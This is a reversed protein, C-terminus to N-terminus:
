AVTENAYLAPRGAIANTADGLRAFGILSFASLQITMSGAFYYFQIKPNTEIAGSTRTQITVTQWEDATLEIDGSLMETSRHFEASNRIKIRCEGGVPKIAFQIIASTIEDMRDLLAITVGQDPTLSVEMCDQSEWVGGSASFTPSGDISLHSTSLSAGEFSESVFVSGGAPPLHRREWVRGAFSHAPLTTDVPPLPQEIVFPMVRGTSTIREAKVGVGPAIDIPKSGAYYVDSLRIFAESGSAKLGDLRTDDILHIGSNSEDGVFVGTPALDYGNVRVAATNFYDGGNAEFWSSQFIFSGTGAVFAAGISCGEVSLKTFLVRPVGASGCALIGARCANIRTNTFVKNGSHGDVNAAAIPITVSAAEEDGNLLDVVSTDDGGMTAFLLGIDSYTVSLNVSGGYYQDNFHAGILCDNIGVNMLNIRRAAYIGCRYKNAGDIGINSIMPTAFPDPAFIYGGLKIAFAGADYARVITGGYEGSLNCRTVGSRVINITGNYTGAPLYLTGGGATDIQATATDYITSLDDTHTGARLADRDAKESVFEYISVLGRYGLLETNRRSSEKSVPVDIAPHSFDIAM